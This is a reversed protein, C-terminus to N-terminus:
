VGLADRVAEIVHAVTRFARTLYGPRRLDHGAAANGTAGDDFGDEMAAWGAGPHVAAPDDAGALLDPAATGNATTRYAAGILTAWQAAATMPGPPAPAGRAAPGAAHPGAGAPPPREPGDEYATAAFFANKSGLAKLSVAYARELADPAGHREYAWRATGGSFSLYWPLRLCLGSDNCSEDIIQTVHSATRFGDSYKRVDTYHTNDNSEGSGDALTETPAVNGLIGTGNETAVPQIDAGALVPNAATPAAHGGQLCCLLLWWGSSQGIGTKRTTALRFIVAARGMGAGQDEALRSQMLTPILPRTLWHLVAGSAAGGRIQCVPGGMRM